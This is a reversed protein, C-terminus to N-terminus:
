QKDSEKQDNLLILHKIYKDQDIKALVISGSAYVTPFSLANIEADYHRIGYANQLFKSRRRDMFIFIHDSQQFNQKLGQVSAVQLNDPYRYGFYFSLSNPSRTDSSVLLYQKAPHTDVEQRVISMAKAEPLEKFRWSNLYKAFPIGTLGLILLIPVYSKIWTPRKSLVSLWSTLCAALIYFSPLIPLTMRDVLPMPEYRTFSTSGFWFFFLCSLAYYGWPRVSRPAKIAGFLALVLILISYQNVLLRAPSITLRKVIEWVSAGDWAWLHKGTLTEVAKFRALPDDWTITCFLLYGAGLCLGAILAPFYFRRLLITRESSKFDVTFAWVWLPVVWYASMKALFAAFLMGTAALPFFLSFWGRLIVKRRSLLMHFSLAMFAAVILDPLLVVAHRFLPVSTLCLFSGIVKSRRDPLALWVTLIILLASFLPVLNTTRINVGFIKYMLATPVTIALRHDFVHGGSIGGLESINFARQSYAWPDSANFEQPYLLWLVVYLLLVTLLCLRSLDFWRPQNM